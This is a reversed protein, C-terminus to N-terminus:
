RRKLLCESVAYDVMFDPRRIDVPLEGHDPHDDAVLLHRPMEIPQHSSTPFDSAGCPTAPISLARWAGPAM